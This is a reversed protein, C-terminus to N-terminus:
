SLMGEGGDKGPPLLGVLYFRVFLPPSMAHDRSALASKLVAEFTLRMDNSLM